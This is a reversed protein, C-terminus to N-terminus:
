ECEAAGRAAQVPDIPILASLIGGNVTFCVADRRSLQWGLTLHVPVLLWAAFVKM